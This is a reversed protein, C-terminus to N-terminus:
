PISHVKYDDVRVIQGAAGSTAVQARLGPAGAVQVNAHPSADTINVDWAAPEITGEPWMRGKFTVSTTGSLELRVWYWTKATYTRLAATESGLTTLESGGEIKRPALHLNGATSFRLRLRYEYNAVSRRATIYALTDAGSALADVQMRVLFQGDRVSVSDLRASYGSNITNITFQGSFGNVSCDSATPVSKTWAGGLDATGWDSAVTRGFHDRAAYTLASAVRGWQAPGADVTQGAVAGGGLLSAFASTLVKGRGAIRSGAVSRYDLNTIDAYYNPTTNNDAETADTDLGTAASYAALTTDYTDSSSGVARRRFLRTNVATAGRWYTNRSAAALLATVGYTAPSRGDYAGLLPQTSIAKSSAPRMAVNSHWTTNATIYTIGRGTETGTPTDSQNSERAMLESEGNNYALNYAATCDNSETIYYGHQENDHSVNFALLGFGSEEIWFGGAPGGSGTAHRAENYRSVNRSVTPYYGGIDFWFGKSENWESLNDTVTAFTTRSGFKFGAAEFNKFWSWNNYAAVNNRIVPYDSSAAGCGRSGNYVFSNHDIVCNDASSGLFLGDGAQAYAITCDQLTFPNGSPKVMGFDDRHTAAFRVGIGQITSATNPFLLGKYRTSYYSGTAPDRGATCVGTAYDVHFFSSGATVDAAAGVHRMRVPDGATPVFILQDPYAARTTTTQSTDVFSEFVGGTGRKNGSIWEGAADTGNTAMWRTTNAAGTGWSAKTWPGTGSWSAVATPNRGDIWVQEHPYSQLTVIKGSITVQEFYSGQRVVIVAGTSVASIAHSITLWPTDASRAQTTTYADSATGGISGTDVYYAGAPISYNTDVIAVKGASNYTNTPWPEAYGASIYAAVPPPVASARQRVRSFLVPFM